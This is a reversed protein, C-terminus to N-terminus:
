TWVSRAKCCLIVRIAPCCRVICERVTAGDWQVSEGCVSELLESTTFTLLKELPLVQRVADSFAGVQRVVGQM